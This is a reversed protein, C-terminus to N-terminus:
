ISETFIKPYAVQLIVLTLHHSGKSIVVHFAEKALVYQVWRHMAYSVSLAILSTGTVNGICGHIEYITPM